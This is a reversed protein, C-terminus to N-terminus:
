ILQVGIECSLVKGRGLPMEGKPKPLGLQRTVARGLHENARLKDAKVTLKVAALLPERGDTGGEIPYLHEAKGVGHATGGGIEVAGGGLLGEARLQEVMLHLRKTHQFLADSQRLGLAGEPVTLLKGRNVGTTGDFVAASTTYNSTDFGLCLRSM